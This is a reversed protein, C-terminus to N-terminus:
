IVLSWEFRGTTKNYAAWGKFPEGLLNGIRIGLKASDEDSWGLKDELTERIWQKLKEKNTIRGAFPIRRLASDTHPGSRPSLEYNTIRLILAAVVYAKDKVSGQNELIQELIQPERVIRGQLEVTKAKIADLPVPLTNYSALISQDLPQTQAVAVVDANSGAGFAKPTRPETGDEKPWLGQEQLEKIIKNLEKNSDIDELEGDKLVYTHGDEGEFIQTGELGDITFSSRKLREYYHVLVAIRYREEQSLDATNQSNNIYQTIQLSDAIDTGVARHYDLLWNRVTGKREKTEFVVGNQTLIQNNRLLADRIKKKLEDREEFLIMGGLRARTKVWIDYYPIDHHDAYYEEILVLAEKESILTLAVFKLLILDKQLRYFLEPETQEIEPHKALVRELVEAFEKAEPVENFRIVRNEIVEAGKVFEDKDLQPNFADSM